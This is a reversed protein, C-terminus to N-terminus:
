HKVFKATLNKDALEVSLHYMGNSRKKNVKMPIRNLGKELSITHKESFDQSPYQITIKAKQKQNAYMLLHLFDDDSLSVDIISDKVVSIMRAALALDPLGAGIEKDPKHYQHASLMLITKLKQAQTKPALQLLQAASSAILPCAYSTGNGEFVKGNASILVTNKGRAVLDPKIRKDATPGISSFSVTNGKKDVAGVSLVQEGDSPATIKRWPDNGENGASAVVLIGKSSAIEAAQTVITTKGDLESYKHGMAKEDHKTYGLSSNIIDVGASDAYEAAFLWFYEEVLYESSPNETRLLIYESKYASGMILGPQNAALCSMVSLGHEDDEFVEEEANVFDWTAIIRQEEFLHKFANLKDLNKFGADLVAIFVGAGNLGKNLLIDAKLQHLQEFSKGLALTDLILDKESFTQALQNIQNELSRESTLGDTDFLNALGAYTVKTVFPLSELQPLINKSNALVLAGNLWRSKGYILLPLNALQALYASDPPIDNINLPVRNRTRRDIARASIYSAPQYLQEKFNPKDKFNVFYFYQQSKLNSGLFLLFCLLGISKM